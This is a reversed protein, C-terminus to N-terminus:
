DDELAEIQKQLEAIKEEKTKPYKEDYMKLLKDKLFPEGITNIVRKIDKIPFDIFRNKGNLFRIIKNIKNKAFEGMLGDDMFFSDSLLTHINAGFTQKKGKLGDVVKSNGKEDKDLFIINQKPIDSLLFPSHSTLIFHFQKNKYISFSAILEKVYRKQWSPHLANEPEDLLKIHNHINGTTKNLHLLFIQGFIEQEGTSLQNFSINKENYIDINIMSIANLIMTREENKLKSLLFRKKKLIFHYEDRRKKFISTNHIKNYYKIFLEIYFETSIEKLNKVKESNLKNNIENFFQSLLSNNLIKEYINLEINTKIEVSTNKSLMFRTFKKLINMNYKSESSYSAELIKNKDQINKVIVDRYEHNEEIQISKIRGFFNIIQINDTFNKQLISQAVNTSSIKLRNPAYFPTSLNLSYIISIPFTEDKLFYLYNSMKNKIKIEKTIKFINKTFFVLFINEYAKLEGLEYASIIELVNSKGSGNKGVIATVNINVGFFNEIYDDNEDITLENEEDDYECHFRSSFNFGQKHINKYDEVWLYVLEM